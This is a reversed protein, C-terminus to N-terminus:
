IDGLLGVNDDEFRSWHAAKRVNWDCVEGLVSSPVSLDCDSEVSLHCDLM